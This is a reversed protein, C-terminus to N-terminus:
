QQTVVASVSNSAADSVVVFNMGTLAYATYVASNGAGVVSGISSNNVSWTYPETGGSATLTINTVSSASVTISDPSVALGASSESKQSATECGAVLLIFSSLAVAIGSFTLHKFSIM